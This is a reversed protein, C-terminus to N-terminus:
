FSVSSIDFVKFVPYRMYEAERYKRGNLFIFRLVDDQSNCKDPNAAKWAEFKDKLGPETELMVAAEDEFVYDSFDEKKELHANFFGWRFFSDAAEPELTEVVYRPDSQEALVVIWDGINAVADGHEFLQPSVTVRTHFPHGEYYPRTDVSVIRYCGFVKSNDASCVVKEKLQHMRVANWTFREIISASYARPIIYAVPVQDGRLSVAPKCTNFYPISKCYPRSRNYKLRNYNGLVSPIYEAEYGRFEYSSPKTRDIEWTLPIEQRQLMRSRWLDKAQRRLQLIKCGHATTFALVTEMLERTSEYRDKYPKLMHTEPVLGIIHRLACYGSLFRPSDPFDEIGDDPTAGIHNIFPCAPWGRSAMRAYIHPLMETKLFAGLDGGLKETQTHILTMTYSYDAGNSCHTDVMVDPDIATIVRNMMRSPASDCKILDRNQDLNLSNCRRGFFDPGDQSARSTNNRNICGDVNYVSNFVFVADGLSALKDASLCFDRIMALCVDIGEPEGPHHGNNNFLIPRTRDPTNHLGSLLDALSVQPSNMVAGVYLPHGADSLGVQALQLVTPFAAALAQYFNICQEYTATHAGPQPSQEYPTVYLGRREDHGQSASISTDINVISHDM